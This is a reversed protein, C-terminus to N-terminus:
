RRARRWTWGGYALRKRRVNPLQRAEAHVLRYFPADFLTERLELAQKLRAAFWGADVSAGSDPDLLRAAIQSEPNFAALGLDDIGDQLRVLTGPAIKRTRRDMAIEDAFVWPAGSHLRRGKGPRLKVIPLSFSSETM